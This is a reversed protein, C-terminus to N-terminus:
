LFWDKAYKEWDVNALLMSLSLDHWLPNKDFSIIVLESGDAKDDKIPLHSVALTMFLFRPLTHYATCCKTGKSCMRSSDRDIQCQDTENEPKVLFIPRQHFFWSAAEEASKFISERSPPGELCGAYTHSIHLAELHPNYEQTMRKEKQPSDRMIPNRAVMVEDQMM